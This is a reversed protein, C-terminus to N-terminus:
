LDPHSATLSKLKDIRFGSWHQAGAFVVPASKYGLGIAREAAAADTSMDVETYPLNNKELIRKTQECQTCNPLSYVTIDM